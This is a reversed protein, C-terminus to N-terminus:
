KIFTKFSFIGSTRQNEWNKTQLLLPSCSFILQNQRQPSCYCASSSWIPAQPDMEISWDSMAGSKATFIRDHEHKATWHFPPFPYRITEKAQFHVENGSVTIKRGTIRHAIGQDWLSYTLCGSLLPILFVCALFVPIIKM